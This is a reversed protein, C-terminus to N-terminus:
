SCIRNRIPSWDWAPLPRWCSGLPFGSRPPGAHVFKWVPLHRGASRQELEGGTCVALLRCRAQVAADFVALTEETNGSHSSVIVLTESGCAWAPLDYDRHILIPVPCDPALCAALLDAAIASGGMGSILVRTIGSFDPLTLQQGLEWASQLQKPLADIQDLMNQPDMQKFSAIDDLIM